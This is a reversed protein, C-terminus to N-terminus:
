SEVLAKRLRRYLAEKKIGRLREPFLIGELHDFEHLMIRAPWGDLEWTRPRGDLDCADIVARAPRKVDAYEGPVSLCGENLVAKGATSRIEPNIVAIGTGPQDFYEGNVVFLRKLVGVQPAALGAGPAELMTEIMDAVLSALEDDFAVVPRAPKELVPEPFTHIKLKAM